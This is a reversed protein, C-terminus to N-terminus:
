DTYCNCTSYEDCDVPQVLDKCGLTVYSRHYTEHTVDFFYFLERFNLSRFMKIFPDGKYTM